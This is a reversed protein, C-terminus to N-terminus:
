ASSGAGTAPDDLQKIMREIYRWVNLERRIEAGVDEGGQLREFLSTVSACLRAREEAAWTGVRAQEASDGSAIAQEMEMRVALMHELFEQPLSTDEEASPGGLRTLLANARSEDDELQARAANLRASERVADAQQLPDGMRDPHCAAVRRRVVGRIAAIDVDFAPEIGLLEFPDEIAENMPTIRRRRAPKAAGGGRARSLASLSCREKEDTENPKM